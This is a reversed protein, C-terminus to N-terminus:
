IWSIPIGRYPFKFTEGTDTNTVTLCLLGIATSEPDQVLRGTSPDEKYGPGCNTVHLGARLSNMVIPLNWVWEPATEYYEKAQQLNETYTMRGVVAPYYPIFDNETYILPFGMWKLMM